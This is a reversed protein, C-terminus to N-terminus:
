ALEDEEGVGALDPVLSGLVLGVLGEAEVQDGVEYGYPVGDVDVFGDLM